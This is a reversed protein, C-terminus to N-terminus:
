RSARATRIRSSNHSRVINLVAATSSRKKASCARPRNALLYTMSAASAKPMVLRWFARSRGVQNEWLRSQSEHMGLSTGHALPSRALEPAVGQEYMGHGAEHLTGFFAPSFFNEDLRTTIRVDNSSFHITFPHASRDQRGRDLDFGFDRIVTLGFDWQRDEDFHRHLPETSPAERATIADVIPVLENQLDSFEAEVEATTMGPEFEDLLAVIREANEQERGEVEEVPLADMDCRLLVAVINKGLDHIDGAVTGILLSTDGVDITISDFNPQGFLTAILNMIVGDVIATIIPAFFTAM